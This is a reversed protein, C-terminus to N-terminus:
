SSKTEDLVTRNRKAMDTMIVPKMLFGKIDLAKAKQKSIRVSFGTYIIIPMDSQIEM